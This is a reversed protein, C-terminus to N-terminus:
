FYVESYEENVRGFMKKIFFFFTIQVCMDKFHKKHGRLNNHLICNKRRENGKEDHRLKSVQLNM